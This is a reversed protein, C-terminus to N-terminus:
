QQSDKPQQSDGTSAPARDFGLQQALDAYDEIPHEEDMWGVWMLRGNEVCGVNFDDSGFDSFGASIADARSEHLRGSWDYCTSWTDINGVIHGAAAFWGRRTDSAM